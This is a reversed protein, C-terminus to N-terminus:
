FRWTIWGRWSQDSAEKDEWSGLMQAYVQQARQAKQLSGVYPWPPLRGAAPEDRQRGRLKEAGDRRITRTCVEKWTQLWGWWARVRVSPSWAWTTTVINWKELYKYLRCQKEPHLGAQALPNLVQLRVESGWKRGEEWLSMSNIAWFNDLYWTKKVLKM